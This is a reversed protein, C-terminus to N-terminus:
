NIKLQQMGNKYNLFKLIFKERKLSYCKYKPYWTFFDKASKTANCHQCSPIINNTTYEGGKSLALFHEQVLPLKEGCYACKYDFDKKIQKWQLLTLTIPLQKKLARRRQEHIVHQEPNDRQYQKRYQRYHEANDKVHQRHYEVIYEANDIRYQRFYEINDKRYKAMKVENDKRYEAIKEINNKRYQKQYELMNERNDKRNQKIREANDKRYKRYREILHEENDKSYQKNYKSDCTKCNARLGKKGNKSKRFMDINLEEGCKTCVKTEIVIM